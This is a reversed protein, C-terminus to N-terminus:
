VRPGHCDQVRQVGGVADDEGAVPHEGPNARATAPRVRFRSKGLHNPHRLDAYVVVASKNAIEDMGLNAPAGRCPQPTYSLFMGIGSTRKANLWEYRVQEVAQRTQNALVVPTAV